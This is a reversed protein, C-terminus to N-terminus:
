TYSWLLSNNNSKEKIFFIAKAPRWHSVGIIRAVWSASILFITNLLWGPCVTWSVRDRCFGGCFLAPPTAWPTPGSKLGWSQWFFFPSFSFFLAKLLPNRSLQAKLCPAVLLNWHQKHCQAYQSGKRSTTNAKTRQKENQWHWSCDWTM